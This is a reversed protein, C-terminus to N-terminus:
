HSAAALMGLATEAGRPDLRLVAEAAAYLDRISIIGVVQGGEGVPLHRAGLRRTTEAAWLLDADPPAICAFLGFRGPHDKVLKAGYENLDRALTRSEDLNNGYWIRPQAISLISTAIGSKDMDELSLSPSWPPPPAGTRRGPAMMSDIHFKPIFHHHVDIRTKAPAQASAPRTHQFATAAGLGLVAAGSALFTRRAPSAPAADAECCTCRSFFKRRGANSSM